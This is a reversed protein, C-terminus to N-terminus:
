KQERELLSGKKGEPCKSIGNVSIQYYLYLLGQLPGSAELLNFSGSKLIIAV